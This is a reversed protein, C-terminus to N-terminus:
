CFGLFSRHVRVHTTTHIKWSRGGATVTRRLLASDALVSTPRGDSPSRRQHGDHTSTGIFSIRGNAWLFLRDLLLLHRKISSFADIASREKMTMTSCAHDVADNVLFKSNSPHKPFGHCFTVSFELNWLIKM